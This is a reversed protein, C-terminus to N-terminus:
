IYYIIYLILPHTMFLRNKMFIFKCDIVVKEECIVGADESHGCNENGFGPFPCDFLSLEKGTCAVDDMLIDGDGEGFFASGKSKGERTNM